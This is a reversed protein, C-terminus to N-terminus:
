EPNKNIVRNLSNPDVEFIKEKREKVNRKPASPFSFYEILVLQDTM